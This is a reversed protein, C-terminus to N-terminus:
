TQAAAVGGGVGDLLKEAGQAVAEGDAVGRVGRHGPDLEVVQADVELAVDVERDKRPRASPWAPKLVISATTVMADLADRSSSSASWALTSALEGTPWVSRLATGTLTESAQSAEVAWGRGDVGM